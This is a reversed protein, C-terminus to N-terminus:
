PEMIIPRISELKKNLNETRISQIELNKQEYIKRSELPNQVVRPTLFVYLNTKDEGSSQSKFGYGLFPIDGFCPVKTQAKTISEDILGGIVVTNTDEVIVSTEIHRKLTTPRDSTNDTASDLKTLEQFINLRVLRGKSIQPTIKLTIGVDKYEYSSYTETGSNAASRTQYPVNKGVTITAEDNETTLLQPTALINVDKDTQFAQIVAQITPFAIGGININKGLIGISFGSPLSGDKLVASNSYGADGTAGFGTVLGRTDDSFSTSARWETGINLGRNVNVEMILCEIYVMARPIDLKSIVDELVPYDEKEAMIIISNTSPDATIKINRSLIPAQATGPKDQSNKTPIDQLIRALKEASAHELYYVRIKEDGKAVKKDLIKILANVHKTEIESALMIISNTREDEIFKINIDQSPTKKDKAKEAFITTLGSALKKADAYKIPIVSIKKGTNQVDITSIIKLLRNISSLTSTVILMNTDNYSLIISKQSVLPTLLPKLEEASAYKLPIIRTVIRDRVSETERSLRTNINDSAANPAPIIKIVKGSPVAAFGHIDLVSEFVKYADEISLRKPSIITVNGNVQKDIIFNKNTLNSMFKIFIRIDVNNFDISINEETQPNQQTKESATVPAFFLCSFLILLILLPLTKH